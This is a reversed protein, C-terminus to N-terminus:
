KDLSLNEKLKNIKNKLKTKRVSKGITKNKDTFDKKSKEEIDRNISNIKHLYLTLRTNIKRDLGLSICEMNYEIAKRPVNGKVSELDLILNDDLKELKSLKIIRDIVKMPYDNSLDTNIFDFFNYRELNNFKNTDRNLLYNHEKTFFMIYSINYNFFKYNDKKSSIRYVILNQFIFGARIMFEMDEKLQNDNTFIYCHCDNRCVDFLRRLLNDQRHIDITNLLDTANYVRGLFDNDRKFMPLRTILLTPKKNNKELYNIIDNISNYFVKVNRFEYYLKDKIM